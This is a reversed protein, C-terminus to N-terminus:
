KIFIIYLLFFAPVAIIFSDFRDLLGGHGPIINSSDKIDVDRKILSELLDGFQGFIAASLAALMMIEATVYNRFILFLIYAGIFAFIGGSIFGELSKKPSVKVLGRHRGILMGMFYAFTDTIWILIIMSILLYEGNHLGRMRYIISYLFPQYIIAFCSLALRNVSGEIRNFFIDYGSVTLLVLLFSFMIAPLTLLSALWLFVLGLPIIVLPILAYKKSFLQRLEFLGFTSFVSLLLLLPYGGNFSIVLILPIFIVAVLVRKLLIM